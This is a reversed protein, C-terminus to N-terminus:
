SETESEQPEATLLNKSMGERVKRTVEAFVEPFEDELVLMPDPHLVNFYDLRPNVALCIRAMATTVIAPYSDWTANFAYEDGDMVGSKTFRFAERNQENLINGVGTLAHFALKRYYLMWDVDRYQVASGQELAYKLPGRIKEVKREEGSKLQRVSVWAREDEPCDGELERVDFSVERLLRRQELPTGLKIAM